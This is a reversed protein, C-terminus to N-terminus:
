KGEGKKNKYSKLTAEIESEVEAMLEKDLKHTSMQKEENKMISAVQSEFQKKLNKYDLHSIKDM